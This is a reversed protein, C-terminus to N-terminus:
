PLVAGALRKIEAPLASTALWTRAASPDREAWQPFYLLMNQRRATEDPLIAIWAMGAAPDEAMVAAAYARMPLVAAAPNSKWLKQVWDGAAGPDRAAWVKVAETTVQRQLDARQPIQRQGWAIWEAPDGGAAIGRAVLKAAPHAYNEPWDAPLPHRELFDRAATVELSTTLYSALTQHFGARRAPDPIVEALPVMMEFDAPTKIFPLLASFVGGLVRSSKVHQGDFESTYFGPGTQGQRAQLKLYERVFHIAQGLNRRALTQAINEPPETDEMRQAVDKWYWGLAKDPDRAVWWAIIDEVSGSVGHRKDGIFGRPAARAMTIARLPDLAAIECVIDWWKAMVDTAPKATNETLSRAETELGALREDLDKQKDPVQVAAAKATASVPETVPPSGVPPLTATVPPRKFILFGAFVAAMTLLFSIIAQKMAQARAV